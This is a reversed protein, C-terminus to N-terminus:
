DYTAEKLIHTALVKGRLQTGGNVIRSCFSSDWECGIIGINNVEHFNRFNTWM